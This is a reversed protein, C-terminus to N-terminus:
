ESRGAVSDLPLTARLTWRGGASGYELTGGCEEIIRRHLELGKGASLMGHASRLRRGNGDGGCMADNRQVIDITGHDIVVDMAYRKAGSGHRLANSCCERIIGLIEAAVPADVSRCTGEIECRARWGASRLRTCSSACASRLLEMFGYVRGDCFDGDACPAEDDLVDLAGRLEKWAHRSRTRIIDWSAHSRDGLEEDDGFVDAAMSMVSLDNLVTDHLASAVRLNRYAIRLRERDQVAFSRMAREDAMWSGVRIVTGALLAAVCSACWVVRGGGGGLAGIGRGMMMVVTFAIEGGMWMALEAASFAEACLVSLSWWMGFLPMIGGGMLAFGWLMGYALMLLCSVRPLVPLMFSILAYLEALPLSVVMSPSVAYTVICDALAGVVAILMGWMRVRVGFAWRDHMLSAIGAVSFSTRADGIVFTGMDCKVVM